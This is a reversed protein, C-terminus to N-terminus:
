PENSYQVLIRHYITRAGTVATFSVIRIHDPHPYPAVEITLDGWPFNRVYEGEAFTGTAVERIAADLALDAQLLSDDCKRAGVRVLITMAIGFVLLFILSAVIVELVSSAQLTQGPGARKSRLLAM